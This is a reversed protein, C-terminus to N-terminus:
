ETSQENKLCLAIENIKSNVKTQNASELAEAFSSFHDYEDLSVEEHSSISPSMEQKLTPSNSSSTTTTTADTVTSPSNNEDDKIKAVHSYRKRVKYMDTYNIFASLSDWLLYPVHKDKNLATMDEAEIFRALKSQTISTVSETKVIPVIPKNKPIVSLYKAKWHIGDKLLMSLTPVNENILKVEDTQGKGKIQKKLSDM